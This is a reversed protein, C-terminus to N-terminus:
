QLTFNYQLFLIGIFIGLASNEDAMIGTNESDTNDTHNYNLSTNTKNM